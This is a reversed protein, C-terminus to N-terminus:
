ITDSYKYMEQQDGRELLEQFYQVIDKLTMENFDPRSSDQSEQVSNEPSHESQEVNNENELNKNDEFQEQPASNLTDQTM